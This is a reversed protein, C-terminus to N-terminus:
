EIITTREAFPEMLSVPKAEGWILKPTDSWHGTDNGSLAAEVVGDLSRIKEYQLECLKAELQELREVSDKKWRMVSDKLDQIQCQLMDVDNVWNREM